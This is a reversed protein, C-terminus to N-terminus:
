KVPNKEGVRQYTCGLIIFDMMMFRNLEEIGSVTVHWKNRRSNKM